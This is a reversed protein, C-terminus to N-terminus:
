PTLKANGTGQRFRQTSSIPSPLSVHRYGTKLAKVCVDTAEEKPRFITLVTLTEFLAELSLEVGVNSIGLALDAEQLESAVQAM